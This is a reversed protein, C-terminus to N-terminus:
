SADPGTADLGERIAETVFTAAPAGRPGLGRIGAIRVPGRPTEAVVEWGYRSGTIEEARVKQIETRGVWTRLQLPLPESAVVIQREDIHV